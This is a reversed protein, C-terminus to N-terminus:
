KLSESCDEITSTEIFSSSDWLPFYETLNSIAIVWVCYLWHIAVNEHDDAVSRSDSLIDLYEEFNKRTFEDTWGQKSPCRKYKLFYKLIIGIDSDDRLVKRMRRVPYKRLEFHDNFPNFESLMLACFLFNGGGLVDTPKFNVGCYEFGRKGFQKLELSPNKVITNVPPHTFVTLM